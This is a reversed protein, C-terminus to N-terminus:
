DFREEGASKVVLARCRPLGRMAERAQAVDAVSSTSLRVVVRGLDVKISDILAALAPDALAASRALAALEEDSILRNKVDWVGPTTRAIREAVVKAGLTQVWGDLLAIGHVVLVGLESPATLPDSGLAATVQERTAQDPAPATPLHRLPDPVLRGLDRRYLPLHALDAATLALRHWRLGTAPDDESGAVDAAAIPTFRGPQFAREVVIRAGSRAPLVADIKGLPVAGNAAALVPDGSRFRPEETM